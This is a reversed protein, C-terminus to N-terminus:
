RPCGRSVCGRVPVAPRPAALRGRPTAALDLRAKGPERWQTAIAACSGASPQREQRREIEVEAGRAPMEDLRGAGSCLQLAREILPAGVHDMHVALRDRQRHAGPQGTRREHDREVRRHAVPRLHGGPGDGGLRALERDRWAERELAAREASSREYEGPGVPSPAATSRSAGPALTSAAGGPCRDRASGGPARAARARAGAPATRRRGSGRSPRSLVEERRKAGSQAAINLEVDDGRRVHRGPGAHAHVAEPGPSGWSSSSWCCASMM